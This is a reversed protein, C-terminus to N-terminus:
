KELHRSDAKPQYVDENPLYPLNESTNKLVYNYPTPTIKVNGETLFDIVFKFFPHRPRCALLANSLLRSVDNYIVLQHIAPEMSVFCDHEAIKTDM